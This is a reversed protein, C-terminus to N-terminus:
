LENVNPTSWRPETVHDLDDQLLLRLQPWVLMKCRTGTPDLSWLAWSGGKEPTVQRHLPRM